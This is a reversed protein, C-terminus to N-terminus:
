QGQHSITLNHDNECQRLKLFHINILAFFICVTDFFLVTPSYNLTDEMQLIAVAYVHILGIYILRQFALGQM